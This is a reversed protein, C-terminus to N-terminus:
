PEIVRARYFHPPGSRITEEVIATRNSSPFFPSNAPLNLASWSNSGFLNTTAQVEFARNAVQPILVQANGNNQASSIRWAAAANTPATATLYELYNVAGDGDPDALPQANVANTSGFYVLQWDSYSQYGSLGNTIWASLLQVAQANIVSTALPPMHGAGLNAVRQFLISNSLSGPAIVRNNTNGFNNNLPGNLIGTQPGLTAIRADWNAQQPGAGGPQHCQVCNAALYSRVRYELSCADNTPHALALLLHRNTIPPNFYGADSLAQLQNTLSGNYNQDCNLQASNFGLAYGGVATHCTLCELRSPYHWIQTHLNGGNNLVFAEDM